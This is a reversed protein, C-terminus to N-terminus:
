LDPNIYSEADFVVGNRRNDQDDGHAVSAPPMSLRVRQPRGESWEAPLEAMTPPPYTQESEEGTRPRVRRLFTGFGEDGADLPEELFDRRRRGLHSEAWAPVSTRSTSSEAPNLPATTARDSAVQADVAQRARQNYEIVPDYSPFPSLTVGAFTSPVSPTWDTYGAEPRPPRPYNYAFAPLEVDDRDDDDDDSEGGFMDLPNEAPLPGLDDLPAFLPYTEVFDYDVGDVGDNDDSENPSISRRVIRRPRRDYESVGRAGSLSVPTNADADDTALPQPSSPTRVSVYHLSSSRPSPAVAFLHDHHPFLQGEQLVYPNELRDRRIEAHLAIQDSIERQALEAGSLPVIPPFVPLGYMINLDRIGPPVDIPEPQFLEPGTTALNSSRSMMDDHTLGPALAITEVRSREGGPPAPYRIEPRPGM